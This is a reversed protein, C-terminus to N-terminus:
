IESCAAPLLMLIESFHLALSANNAQMTCEAVDEPSRLLELFNKNRSVKYAEYEPLHRGSEAV